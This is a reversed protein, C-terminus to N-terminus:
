HTVHSSIEKLRDQLIGAYQMMIRRQRRLLSKHNDSLTVFVLNHHIFSSLRNIKGELDQLENQLKDKTM